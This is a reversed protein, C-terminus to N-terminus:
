LMWLEPRLAQKVKHLLIRGIMQRDFDIRAFATMGPRLLGDTNEITLEVRFTAQNYSDRESEGGIKSVTGRFVRDPFSLSKLRVPHGVRVDGIEREPVQIRLLLERTDAVRCIEEGKQFYHGALRPLEEGFVTGARPTGLDFQAHKRELLDRRAELTGMLRSLARLESTLKEIQLREAGLDSRAVNMETATNTHRRRHSILAAELRERAAALEFALSAAKTEAADRESRAILGEAFLQRARGLETNAEDLQERRMNVDAELAAIAAPYRYLDPQNGAAPLASPRVSALLFRPAEGREEALRRRDIQRRESDIEGYDYQRQRLQLAARAAAEKRAHSEGLLREYDAGARALEAQVQVMQEELDLNGMQAILAGSAVQEGPQARLTILTASEPARVIAERGPLAILTGYNGVSASWPLLLVVVAALLIALPVLRSRWARRKMGPGEATKQESGEERAIKTDTTTAMTHESKKASIFHLRGAAGSIINGLTTIIGASATAILRKLPRRVFMLALGFAAFLGPLHFWDVLCQGAYLVIFFILGATYLFSLMGFVAYIARERGGNRPVRHDREGFLIRRGLGRWYARSRDMLNPLRLWQSLFYYGDLKILPNANFVVNLFSGLFFIFALDAPLTYPAVLFWLLLACTGVLVQWYVGALIVWLRRGRQPILYAGSVNCYLAPLFYYIMVFGVETTRGGFAKCTLGHAFEHSFVVFTGAVFVALYHERLAYEGYSAVEACNLLSLLVASLMLVLTCIVFGPTWVWRLRPVLRGFIPDPNFLKFRVYHDPQGDRAVPRLLREGALIGAEDLRALFRTLTPLPLRAGSQQKFEDCLAGHSLSKRLLLFVQYETARLLIYRGAAPSGVVHVLREGDRQESVEVDATIKPPYDCYDATKM